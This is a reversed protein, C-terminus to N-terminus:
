PCLYLKKKKKPQIASAYSTQVIFDCTNFFLNFTFPNSQMALNQCIKVLIEIKTTNVNLCLDVNFGPGSM